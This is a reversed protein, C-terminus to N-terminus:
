ASICSLLSSRRSVDDPCAIEDAEESNRSEEMAKRYLYGDESVAARTVTTQDRTYADPNSTLAACIRRPSKDGIQQLVDNELLVGLGRAYFRDKLPLSGTKPILHGIFLDILAGTFRRMESVPEVDFESFYYLQRNNLWVGDGGAAIRHAYRSSPSLRPSVRDFTKLNIDIKACKPKLDWAAALIRFTKSGTILRKLAVRYPLNSSSSFCEVLLSVIRATNHEGLTGLARLSEVLELGQRVTVRESISQGIVVMNDSFERGADLIADLHMNEAIAMENIKRLVRGKPQFSGDENEVPPLRKHLEYTTRPELPPDEGLESLIRDTMYVTEGRNNHAEHPMPDHLGTLWHVTEHVWMRSRQFATSDTPTTYRLKHLDEDPMFWIRDGKRKAIEADFEIKCKASYYPSKGYAFNIITAATDSREYALHWFQQFEAFLKHTSQEFLGDILDGVAPSRARVGPIATIARWYRNTEFVTRRTVLNLHNVGLAGGQRGFAKTLRYYSNSDPNRFIPPADRIVHGRLDIEAYGEGTPIAPVSRQEDELFLMQAEARGPISEVTDAAELSKPVTKAPPVHATAHVDFADNDITIRNRGLRDASVEPMLAAMDGLIDVDVREAPSLRTRAMAMAEADHAVQRLMIREAGAGLATLIADEGFHIAGDIARQRDGLRIGEEIDYLPIVFPLLGLIQRADGSGLAEIVTTLTQSGFLRTLLALMDDILLTQPLGMIEKVLFDTVADLDRITAPASHQRGIERSKARVVPHASLAMGVAAKTSEWVSRTNITSGNFRMLAQDGPMTCRRRFEELRSVSVGQNMVTGLGLMQRTLQHMQADQMSLERRLIQAILFNKDYAPLPALSMMRVELYDHLAHILESTSSYSIKEPARQRKGIQVAINRYVQLNNGSFSLRHLKGGEIFRELQMNWNNVETGFDIGIAKLAIHAPKTIQSSIQLADSLLSRRDLLVVDSSQALYRATLLAPSIHYRPNDHWVAQLQRYAQLLETPNNAADFTMGHRAAQRLMTTSVAHLPTGAAYWTDLMLDCAMTREVIAYLDDYTLWVGAISVTNERQTYRLEVFHSHMKWSLTVRDQATIPADPQGPLFRDQNGFRILRQMTPTENKYPANDFLEDVIKAVDKGRANQLVSGDYWFRAHGPPIKTSPMLYQGLAADQWEDILASAYQARIVDIAADQAIGGLNTSTHFYILAAEDTIVDRSRQLREALAARGAIDPRRHRWVIQLIQTASLDRARVKDPDIWGLGRQLVGQYLDLLIAEDMVITAPRSLFFQALHLAEGDETHPHALLHSTFSTTAYALDHPGRSQDDPTSVWSIQDIRSLDRWDQYLTQDAQRLTQTAQAMTCRFTDRYAAALLIQARDHMPSLKSPAHGGTLVAPMPLSDRSARSPASTTGAQNFTNTTTWLPATDRPRRAARPPSEATTNASRRYRIKAGTNSLTSPLPSARHSQREPFSHFTTPIASSTASLTNAATATFAQAAALGFITM